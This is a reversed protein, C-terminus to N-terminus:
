SAKVAVVPKLLYAFAGFANDNPTTAEPQWGKAKLDALFRGLTASSGDTVVGDVRFVPNAAQDPKVLQLRQIRVQQGAAQRLTALMTVPNHSASFGIQKLFAASAADPGVAVLQSAATARLRLAEVESKLGEAQQTETAATYQTFFAYGGLGLAVAAVMATLPTMYVESLWAMKSVLPAEIAKSEAANLEAPLASFIQGGSNQKFTEHPLVNAQLGQSKMLTM